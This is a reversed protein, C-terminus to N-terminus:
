DSPPEATQRPADAPTLLLSPRIMLVRGTSASEPLTPLVVLMFERQGFRVGSARHAEVLAGTTDSVLWRVDGVLEGEANVTFNVSIENGGVPSGAKDTAGITIMGTQGVRTLIAPGSLNAYGPMRTFWDFTEAIRDGSQVRHGPGDNRGREIVGDKAFSLPGDAEILNMMCLVQPFNADDASQNTAANRAGQAASQPSEREVRTAGCAALVACAVGAACREVAKSWRRRPARLNAIRERLGDGFGLAVGAHARASALEILARGYRRRGDADAADLAREDCAIEILARVRAAAFWVAAIPWALIVCLHLAAVLIPDRRAVHSSEHSIVAAVGEEGVRTVLGRPVVLRPRRTGVLLPGATPHEVIDLCTGAVSLPAVPRSCDRLMGHLRRRARAWRLLLLAVGALYAFPLFLTWSATTASAPAGLGALSAASSAAGPAVSWAALSSDSTPAAPLTFAIMWSEPLLLRLLIPAYFLMRWRASVRTALLRDLAFAVAFLALAWANMRPIWGVLADGWNSLFETVAALRHDHPLTM